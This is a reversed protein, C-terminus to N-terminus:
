FQYWRKPEVHVFETVLVEPTGPELPAAFDEATVLLRFSEFPVTGEWSAELKRNVALQGLLAARGELDQAWVLYVARPPTLRSPSALHEVTMEVFADGNPEPRIKVEGTAAPQAPALRFPVTTTACGAAVLAVAAVSIALPIRKPM